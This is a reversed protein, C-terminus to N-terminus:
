QRLVFPSDLIIAHDGYISGLDHQVQPTMRGERYLRVAADHVLGYIDRSYKFDRMYKTSKALNVLDEAEYTDKETLRMRVIDGIDGIFKENKVKLVAIGVSINAAEMLNLDTANWRPNQNFLKILDSSILKFAQPMTTMQAYNPQLSAFTALILWFNMYMTLDPVLMLVLKPNEEFHRHEIKTVEEFLTHLQAAFSTFYRTKDPSLRAFSSLISYLTFLDYQDVIEGTEGFEDGVLCEFLIKNLDENRYGMQSIASLINAVEGEAGEKM